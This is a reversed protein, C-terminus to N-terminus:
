PTNLLTLFDRGEFRNAQAFASSFYEQRTADVAPEVLTGGSCEAANQVIKGFLDPSLPSLIEIIANGVPSYTGLIEILQIVVNM